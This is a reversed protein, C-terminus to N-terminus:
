FCGVQKIKGGQIPLDPESLSPQPALARRSPHPVKFLQKPIQGFEMIQVELANRKGFDTESSLDVNGEYCMPYFVLYLQILCPVPNIFIQYIVTIHKLLKMALKNTVLFSTLGTICIQQFWNV